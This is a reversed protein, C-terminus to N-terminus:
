LGLYILICGVSIYFFDFLGMCEFDFMVNCIIVVLLNMDDCQLIMCLGVLEGIDLYIDVIEWFIVCFWEDLNFGGILFSDLM